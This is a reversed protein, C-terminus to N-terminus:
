NNELKLFLEGYEFMFEEVETRSYFAMRKDYISINKKFERDYIYYSNGKQHIIFRNGYCYDFNSIIKGKGIKKRFWMMYIVVGTLLLLAIFTKM